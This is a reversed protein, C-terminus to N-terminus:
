VPAALLGSNIWQQLYMAATQAATSEEGGIAECIGAFNQGERLASLARAETVSLSRFLTELEPRWILWNLAKDERHPIQPEAEQEAAKWLIPVNWHLSLMRVAARTQFCLEPWDEAAVNGLHALTLAEDNQADFVDRLQWEFYAMESLLERHSLNFNHALFQSFHNGFYRISFHTSPHADIYSSCVQEFDEDGMLTHVAPYTDDLAEILRLRYAEAYIFMRQRADLAGGDVIISEAKADLNVVGQYFQRQLETLTSM